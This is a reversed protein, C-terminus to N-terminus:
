NFNFLERIRDLFYRKIDIYFVLVMLGIIVAFGVRQAFDRFRAHVPSGKILEIIFFFLHGGDLLPIPLFNLIGLMISLMAMMRVFALWGGAKYSSGALYFISIPGGLNDVSVRGRVMKVLGAIQTISFDVTEDVGHKLAVFPNLYQEKRTAPEGGISASVVGLQRTKEKKRTLEDQRVIEKPVLDIRVEQKNRLIGLTIKEGQNERIRKQFDYWSNLREGNLSFLRDGVKVGHESAVTDPMVERVYLEGEEIGAEKLTKGKAPLTIDLKESKEITTFREISLKRPERSQGFADSLEWWYRTPQGNVSAIVDGTKLGARAAVSQSDMIGVTPRLPSMDIGIKGVAEKEGYMNVDQESIPVATLELTQNGREIAVKTPHGARRSLLATMDSWKWISQGEIATIKDGPRLGAKEAPYGPIVRGVQSIPTPMGVMFLGTFLVVPLILNSFPGMAVIGIRTLPKKAAFSRPDTSPSAGEEKEVEEGLMKVYGGLPLACIAYETDGIKKRILAPGFGLAFREVYVGAWKAMLFHGLEHIFVLIGFLIVALIASSFM